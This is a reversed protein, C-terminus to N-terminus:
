NLLEGDLVKTMGRNLQIQVALRLAFPIDTLVYRQFLNRDRKQHDLLLRYLWELGYDQMWTPARGVTKAIYDFAGGVPVILCEPLEDWHQNVWLTQWPSGLAVFLIDPQVGHIMQMLCEKVMPNELKKRPEAWCAVTDPLMNKERLHKKAQALTDPNSGLIFVRYEQHTALQMLAPVVDTLALRQPVTLGALKALWRVPVGDVLVASARHNLVDRYERNDRINWLIDINVNDILVKQHASRSSRVFSFLDDLTWPSIAVGFSPIYVNPPLSVQKKGDLTLDYIGNSTM